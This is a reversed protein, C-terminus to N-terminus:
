QTTPPFKSELEQLWDFQCGVPEGVRAQHIINTLPGVVDFLLPYGQTSTIISLADNDLYKIQWLLYASEYFWQILRRADDINERNYDESINQWIAEAKTQDTTRWENRIEPSYNRKWDSLLVLANRMERTAYRELYHAVTQARTYDNARKTHHVALGSLILAVISISITILETPTFDM